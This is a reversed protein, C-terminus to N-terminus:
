VLVGGADCGEPARSAMSSSALSRTIARLRARWCPKPTRHDGRRAVWLSANHRCSPSVCGARGVDRSVRIPWVWSRVVVLPYPVLALDCLRIGRRIARRVHARGGTPDLQRAIHHACILRGCRAAEGWRCDIWRHCFYCVSGREHRDDSRGAQADTGPWAKIFPVALLSTGPPYKSAPPVGPRSPLVYGHGDAIAQAGVLYEGDDIMDGPLLRPSLGVAALWAAIGLALIFKVLQDHM